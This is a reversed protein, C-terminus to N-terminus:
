TAKTSDNSTAGDDTETKRPIHYVTLAQHMCKVHISSVDHPDGDICFPSNFAGEHPHIKFETVMLAEVDKIMALHKGRKMKLGISAVRSRKLSSDMINLSLSGDDAKVKPHIPYKKGQQALNSAMLNVISIEKKKWPAGEESGDAERFELIGTDIIPWDRILTVFGAIDYRMSKQGPLWRLQDAKLAVAGPMGWGFCSLAYVHIPDNSDLEGKSGPRPQQVCSIVDVKRKHGMAVALIARGVISIQTKDAHTHLENAMANATGCPAIGIAIESHMREQQNHMFYGTIVEHVLGDGGCVILADTSDLDLKSVLEVAHRREQTPLVTFKLRTLQLIPVILHSVMNKAKGGGGVPNYIVTVHRDQCDAFTDGFKKAETLIKGRVSKDKALQNLLADSWIVRQNCEYQDSPMFWTFSGQDNVFTDFYEKPQKKEVPLEYQDWIRFRENVVHRRVKNWHKVTHSLHPNSKDKRDEEDVIATVVITGMSAPKRHVRPVWSGRPRPRPVQPAQGEPGNDIPVVSNSRKSIGCGM